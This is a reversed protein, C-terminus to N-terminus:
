AVHVVMAVRSLKVITNSIADNEAVFAAVAEKHTSRSSTIIHYNYNM